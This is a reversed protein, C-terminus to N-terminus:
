AAAVGAFPPRAIFTSAAAWGDDTRVDVPLGQRREHHEGDAPQDHQEDPQQARAHDPSQITGPSVTM